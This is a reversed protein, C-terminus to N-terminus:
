PECVRTVTGTAPDTTAVAVKAGAATLCQHPATASLEVTSTSSGLSAKVIFKDVVSVTAGSKTTTDTPLYPVRVWGTSDASLTLWLTVPTTVDSYVQVRATGGIGAFIDLRGLNNSSVADPSLAAVQTYTRERVTSQANPEVWQVRVQRRLRLQEAASGGAWNVGVWAADYTVCYAIPGKQQIFSRRGLDNEGVTVGGVTQLGLSDSSWGPFWAGTGSDRRCRNENQEAATLPIATVKHRCRDQQGLWRLKVVNPSESDRADPLRAGCENAVATEMVQTALTTAYDAHRSYLTAKVMNVIVQSSAILAGFTITLAVVLEALTFGDDNRSIANPNSEPAPPACRGSRNGSASSV